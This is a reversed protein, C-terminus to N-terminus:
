KNVERGLRREISEVKGTLRGKAGKRDDVHIIIYIRNHGRRRLMLRAKNIVRMVPEWDGEISTSMSGTKYPLGSKDIIDIVRSVDESVSGSSARKTTPFMSLQFLM